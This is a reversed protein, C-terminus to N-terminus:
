ECDNGSLRLISATHEESVDTLQVILLGCSPVACYGLYSFSGNFLQDTMGFLQMVGDVPACLVLLLICHLVFLLNM